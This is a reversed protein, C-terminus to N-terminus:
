SSLQSVHASVIKWGIQPFKYWTQSQRGLQEVGDITRRFELTAIATDTGFTVVKLNFMERELNKSPRSQRFAKLQQSGYLNEKAGFRVVDPSDWFLCDLTEIDNSVLAKEYQLCLALVEEQNTTNKVQNM